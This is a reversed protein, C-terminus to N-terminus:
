YVNPLHPCLMILYQDSKVTLSPDNKDGIVLICHILMFM